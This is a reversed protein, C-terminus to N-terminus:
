SCAIRVTEENNHSRKHIQTAEGSEAGRGIMATFENLASTSMPEAGVPPATFGLYVMSVLGTEPIGFDCLDNSASLDEDEEVEEEKKKAKKKGKPKDKKKDEGGV